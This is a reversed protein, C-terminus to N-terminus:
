LSQIFDDWEEPKGPKLFVKEYMRKRASVVASKSHVTLNGISTTSFHLKLLLCVRQEFENFPHLSLLRKTFDNYVNDIETQLMTWQERTIKPATENALNRFCTYLESEYFAAKDIEQKEQRAKILANSKEIQEKQAQLLKAQLGNKEQLAKIQEALKNIQEKNKELAQQSQQYSEERLDKVKELQIKLQLSKRRSRERYLIFATLLFAFAVGSYLIWLRQQGNKVKLNTNEKERLQYNYLAQTKRIAEADHLKQVSDTCILYHNLHELAEQPRREQVAIEALGRLAAQKAYITGCKLIEKYYYTASDIQGTKYYLKSAISYIGSKSHGAINNLSPRLAKRALDYKKQQIYLSAMQNQVLDMLFQNHTALALHYAKWYYYLSYSILNNDRCAGAIDRLAFVMGSSDRAMVSYPYARKFMELSEDYIDQYSFLTGIQAYIKSILRYDTSGYSAQKAKQFYELAQPADNLDSYVRGAYYYAEMLHAKAKKKEYYRVIPLIASDSTHTIYAKDNAKIQLLRYYMQTAEPEHSIQAKLQKLLTIASDPNVYTLSDAVVLIRPYSRDKCACFVFLFLLLALRIVQRM